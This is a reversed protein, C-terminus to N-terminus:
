LNNTWSFQDLAYRYLALTEDFRANSTDAGLVVVILDGHDSAFVGGYCWGAEETYGTKGMVLPVDVRGVLHNAGTVRYPVAHDKTILEYANQSLPRKLDPFHRAYRLLKWYDQVSAVNLESLGTPEVVYFTEAGLAHAKANMAAAFESVSLGTSEAFAETANNASAVMAANTLDWLLMHEGTEVHLRSGTLRNNSESLAVPTIWDPRLEEFTVWTLVKSLSAIPLVADPNKEYLVSGSSADVVIASRATIEPPADTKVRTIESTRDPIAPLPFTLEISTADGLVRTTQVTPSAVAPPFVFGATLALSLWFSSTM